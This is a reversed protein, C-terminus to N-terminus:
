RLSRRRLATADGRRPVSPLRSPQGKGRRPLRLVVAGAEEAVEATRDRSGDDAVIVEAAPFEGRLGTM